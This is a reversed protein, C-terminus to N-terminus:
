LSGSEEKVVLIEAIVLQVLVHGHPGRLYVDLHGVAGRCVQMPTDHSGAKGLQCSLSISARCHPTMKPVERQSM